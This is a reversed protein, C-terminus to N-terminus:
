EAPLEGFWSRGVDGATATAPFAGIAELTVPAFRYIPRDAGMGLLMWYELADLDAVGCRCETLGETTIRALLVAKEAPDASAIAGFGELFPSCGRAAGEIAEALHAARSAPDEATMAQIRRAISAPPPPLAGRASDRLEAAVLIRHDTGVAEMAVRLRAMPVHRDVFLVVVGPWPVHSRYEAWRRRQEELRERLVAGLDREGDADVQAYDLEVRNRYMTLAPAPERYTTGGSAVTIPDFGPEWPAAVVSTNTLTGELRTRISAVRAECTADPARGSRAPPEHPTPATASTSPGCAAALIALALALRFRMAVFTHCSQTRKWGPKL